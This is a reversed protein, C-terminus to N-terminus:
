CYCVRLVIQTIIASLALAIFITASLLLWGSVVEINAIGITNKSTKNGMRELELSCAIRCPYKFDTGCKLSLIRSWTEGQQIEKIKFRFDTAVIKKGLIPKNYFKKPDIRLNGQQWWEEETRKIEVYIQIVDGTTYPFFHFPTFRRWFGVPRASYKIVDHKKNRYYKPILM